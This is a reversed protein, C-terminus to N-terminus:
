DDFPSRNCGGATMFTIWSECITDTPSKTCNAQSRAAVVALECWSNDRNRHRQGRKKSGDLDFESDGNDNTYCTVFAITLFLFIIIIKGM